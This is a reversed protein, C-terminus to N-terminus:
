LTLDRQGPAVYPSQKGARIQGIRIMIENWQKSSMSSSRYNVSQGEIQVVGDAFLLSGPSFRQFYLIPHIVHESGNPFAARLREYYEADESVPLEVLYGIRELVQARSFMMTIVAKSVWRGNVEIPRRHRDERQSNCVCVVVDPNTLLSELQLELRLPHSRDDADHFTVYTGRAEALGRNRASAAGGNVPQRLLRIRSDGAMQDVVLATRDASKDDVVVLEWHKYTQEQLSRIAELITKEANFAAMVVTILPLGHEALLQLRRVRVRALYGRGLRGLLPPNSDVLAWIPNRIWFRFSATSTLPQLVLGLQRLPKFRSDAFFHEPNRRFKNLKSM